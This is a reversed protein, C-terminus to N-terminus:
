RLVGKMVDLIVRTATEILVIDDGVVRYDQGRRKPLRASLDAPLQRKALGPPLTGNREIQKQLGPSLQERKALGPPLGSSSSRATHIYDGILARETASIIAVALHVADDGGSQGEKGKSKSQTSVESTKGKGKSKDKGAAELAAPASILLSLGVLVALLSRM